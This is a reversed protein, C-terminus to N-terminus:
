RLSLGGKLGYRNVRQYHRRQGRLDNKGADFVEEEAFSPVNQFLMNDQPTMRGMLGMQGM